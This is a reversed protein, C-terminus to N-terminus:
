SVRCFSMFALKSKIKVNIEMAKILDLKVNTTLFIKNQM